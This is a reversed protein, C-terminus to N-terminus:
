SLCRSYSADFSTDRIVSGSCSASVVSPTHRSGVFGCMTSESYRCRNLSYMGAWLSDFVAVAFLFLSLIMQM